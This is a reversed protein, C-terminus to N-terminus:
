ESNLYKHTKFKKSAPKELERLSVQIDNRIAKKLEEISKLGLQPRMFGAFIVRMKKDYLDDDIQEMLHIELSRNPNGYTPNNGIKFSSILINFNDKVFSIILIILYYNGISASMMYVNDKM